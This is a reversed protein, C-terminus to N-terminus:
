KMGTVPLQLNNLNFTLGTEYIGNSVIVLNTQDLYLDLMLKNTIVLNTVDVGSLNCKYHLWISDENQEKNVYELKLTDNGFTVNLNETIYEDIMNLEAETFNKGLEPNIVKEFLHFFLLSFDDTFFKCSVTAEQVDENIDINVISVHIPHMNFAAMRILLIFLLTKM